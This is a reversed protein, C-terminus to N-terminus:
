VLDEVNTVRVGQAYLRALEVVRKGTLSKKIDPIPYAFEDGGTELYPVRHMEWAVIERAHVFVTYYETSDGSYSDYEGGVSLVNNVSVKRNRYMREQLGTLSGNEEILNRKDYSRIVGLMEYEYYDDNIWVHGLSEKLIVSLKKSLKKEIRPKM